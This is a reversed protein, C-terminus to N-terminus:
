LSSGMRGSSNFIILSIDFLRVIEHLYVLRFILKAYKSKVEIRGEDFNDSGALRIAYDLNEVTCINEDTRDNCDNKGNCVLTQNICKRNGCIFMNDCKISREKMEYYDFEKTPKLAGTLGM